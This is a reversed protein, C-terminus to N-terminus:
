DHRASCDQCGALVNIVSYINNIPIQVSNSQTVRPQPSWEGRVLSFSSNVCLPLPRLPPPYLNSPPPPLLPPRRPERRARAEDLSLASNPSPRFLCVIYIAETARSMYHAAWHKTCDDSTSGALCPGSAVKLEGAPDDVGADESIATDIKSKALELPASFIDSLQSKRAKQVHVKQVHAKQVCGPVRSGTDARKGTALLADLRLRSLSRQRTCASLVGACFV